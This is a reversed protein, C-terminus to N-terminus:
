PTICTGFLGEWSQQQAYAETNVHSHLFYCFLWFVVFFCFSVLSSFFFSNGFDYAFLSAKKNSDEFVGLKPHVCDLYIKSKHITRLERTFQCHMHRTPNRKSDQSSNCVQDGAELMHSLLSPRYPWFDGERIRRRPTFPNCPNIYDSSCSLGKMFEAGPRGVCWHHHFHVSGQWVEQESHCECPSGTSNDNM